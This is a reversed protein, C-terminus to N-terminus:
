LELKNWLELLDNLDIENYIFKIILNKLVMKKLELNDIYYYCVFRGSKEKRIMGYDLLKGINYYIMIRKLSTKLILDKQSIGPNLKIINLILDQKKNLEYFKLNTESKNNKNNISFEKNPYFFKNNGDITSKIEKKKELFHLHYRLTSDSFNFISKLNKFSAGPHILIHNYIMRRTENELVGVDLIIMIEGKTKVPNINLNV